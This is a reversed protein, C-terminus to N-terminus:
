FGIIPYGHVAGQLSKEVLAYDVFHQIILAAQLIGKTILQAVVMLMMVFMYM